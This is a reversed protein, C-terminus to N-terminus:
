ATCGVAFPDTRVASLYSCAATFMSTCSKARYVLGSLWFGYCWLCILLHTSPHCSQALLRNYQTATRDALFQVGTRFHM